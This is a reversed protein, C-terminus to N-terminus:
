CELVITAGAVTKHTNAPSKVAELLNRPAWLPKGIITINLSDLEIFIISEAKVTLTKHLYNMVDCYISGFIPRAVISEGFVHNATNIVEPWKSKNHVFFGATNESEFSIRLRTPDLYCGGTRIWVGM